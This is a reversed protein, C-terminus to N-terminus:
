LLCSRMADDLRKDDYLEAMMQRATVPNGNFDVLVMDPDLEETLGATIPGDPDFQEVISTSQAEADDLVRAAAQNMQTGTEHRSFLFDPTTETVRTTGMLFLETDRQQEAQLQRENAEFAARAEEVRNLAQRYKKNASKLASRRQQLQKKPLISIETLRARINDEGISETIVRLQKEIDDRQRRTLQPNELDARFSRVLEGTAPDLSELADALDPFNIEIEEIDTTLRTVEAQAEDLRAFLEPQQERIIDFDAARKLEEYPVPPLVRAIATDGGRFITQVEELEAVFRRMGPQSTGYPSADEVTRELNLIHQTGRAEPTGIQELVADAQQRFEAESRQSQRARRGRLFNGVLDGVGQFGAGLTAALAIDFFPDREPLGAFERNGQVAGLETAATISGSAVAATTIRQFASKGIGGVGLTALTLPDRVSLTGATAGIFNGIAGTLGGTESILASEDEIRKQMEFVEELATTFDKLGAEKLKTDIARLNEIDQLVGASPTGSLTKQWFTYDEGSLVRAYANLSGLPTTMRIEEGTRKRYVELEKEILDNLEYELSYPSDVRYQQEFGQTLGEFFGTPKGVAFEADQSFGTDFLSM